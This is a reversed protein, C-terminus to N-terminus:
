HMKIEVLLEPHPLRQRKVPGMIGIAQQGLALLLQSGDSVLTKNTVPLLCVLPDDCPPEEM